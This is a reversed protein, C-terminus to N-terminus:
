SYVRELEMVKEDFKKGTGIVVYSKTIYYFGEPLEDVELIKRM